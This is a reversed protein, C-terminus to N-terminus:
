PMISIYMLRCILFAFAILIMAILWKLITNYRGWDYFEKDYGNMMFSKIIPKEAKRYLFYLFVVITLQLLTSSGISHKYNPHYFIFLIPFAIIPLLILSIIYFTKEVNQLVTPYSNFHILRFIFRIVKMDEDLSIEVEAPDGDEPGQPRTAM